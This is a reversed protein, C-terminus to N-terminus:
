KEKVFTVHTKDTEKIEFMTLIVPLLNDVDACKPVIFIGGVKLATYARAAVVDLPLNKNDWLVCDFEAVPLVTYQNIANSTQANEPIVIEVKEKKDM